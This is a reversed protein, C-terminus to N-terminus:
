RKELAALLRTKLEPEMLFVYDLVRMGDDMRQEVALEFWATWARTLSKKLAVNHEEIGAAEGKWVPLYTLVEARDDADEGDYGFLDCVQNVWERAHKLELKVAELQTAM